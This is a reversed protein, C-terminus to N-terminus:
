LTSYLSVAVRAKGALLCHWVHMGVWVALQLAGVWKSIEKNSSEVLLSAAIAGVFCISFAIIYAQSARVLKPQRVVLGLGKLFFLWLLFSIFIVIAGVHSAFAVTDARTFFVGPRGASVTIFFGSAIIGGGVLGLLISGSALGRLGTQKPVTCCLIQGLFGILSVIILALGLEILHLDPSQPKPRALPGAERPWMTYVVIALLLVVFFSEAIQILFLGAPVQAWTSPQSPLEIEPLEPLDAPETPDM